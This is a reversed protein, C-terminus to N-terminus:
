MANYPLKSVLVISPQDNIECDEVMLKDQESLEVIFSLQKEKDKRLKILKM